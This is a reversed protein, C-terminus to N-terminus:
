SSPTDLDESFLVYLCMCGSGQVERPCSFVTAFTLVSAPAMLFQRGPTTTLRVWCPDGATYVRGTATVATPIYPLNLTREGVTETKQQLVDFEEKM